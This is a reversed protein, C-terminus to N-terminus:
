TPTRTNLTIAHLAGSALWDALLKNIMQHQALRTKGAFAASTVTIKFQCGEGEPIVQADPLSATIRDIIDQANM